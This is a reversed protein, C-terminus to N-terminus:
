AVHIEHDPAFHYEPTESRAHGVNRRTQHDELEISEIVVASFPDTEGVSLANQLISELYLQNSPRGGIGTYGPEDLGIRLQYGIFFHHNYRDVRVFVKFDSQASLCM